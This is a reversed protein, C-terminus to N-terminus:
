ASASGEQYVSIGISAGTRVELGSLEFPRRFLELVRNAARTVEDVGDQADLLLLFEDGGWRALTDGARLNSAIRAAVARLLADGLAYGHTDNIYKFNDLDLFMVALGRAGREAQAAAQELREDFVLRNPLGTLADRRALRKLEARERRLKAELELRQTLAAAQQVFVRTMEVAEDDFAAADEFNDLYLSIKSEGELIIPVCLSVKIDNTLGNEEMTRRRDEDLTQTQWGYVFQPEPNRLDFLFDAPGLTCRQLAELEFGVAAVFHYGDDEKMLMSGTQAGPVTRM